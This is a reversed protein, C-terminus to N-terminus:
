PFVRRLELAQETRALADSVERSLKQATAGLDPDRGRAPLRDVLDRLLYLAPPPPWRERPLAAGACALLTSDAHDMELLRSAAYLPLPVGNEDVTAAPARAIAEYEVVAGDARGARALSRALYLRAHAAQIPHDAAQLAERYLEAARAADGGAFEAREATRLRETFADEALLRRATAPLDDQEWPLVLRGDSVAAVLAVTSDGYEAARLLAPDGAVAGAQRLAVRDLRSSLEQRLARAVGRREESLRARALEQEQVALRLGLVVLAVCPLLIAALFLVVQRRHAHAAM